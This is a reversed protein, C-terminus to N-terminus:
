NVKALCGRCVNFEAKEQDSAKKADTLMWDCATFPAGCLTQGPNGLKNYHTGITRSSRVVGARVHRVEMRKKASEEAHRIDARVSGHRPQYLNKPNRAWAEWDIKQAEEKKMYTTYVWTYM